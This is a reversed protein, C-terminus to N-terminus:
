LHNSNAYFVKNSPDMEIAKNFYLGAIDFEQKIFFRNGEEKFYESLEKPNKSIYEKKDKLM